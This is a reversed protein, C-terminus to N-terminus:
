KDGAFEVYFDILIVAFGGITDKLEGFALIFYDATTWSASFLFFFSLLSFIGTLFLFFAPFFRPIILDSARLWFLSRSEDRTKHGTEARRRASGRM